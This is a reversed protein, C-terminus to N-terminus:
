TCYFAKAYSASRIARDGTVTFWKMKALKSPFYRLLIYTVLLVPVYGPALVEVRCSSYKKKKPKGIVSRVKM